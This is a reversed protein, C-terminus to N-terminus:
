WQQCEVNYQINYDFSNSLAFLANFNSLFVIFIDRTM